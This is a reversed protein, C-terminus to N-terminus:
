LDMGKMKERLRAMGRNLLGRLSGNSLGLQRGITEYDAGGLYRLTLPLRYEDPMSRLMALVRHRREENQAWEEPTPGPDPVIQMAEGAYSGPIDADRVGGRAGVGGRKRRGERRAADVLASHAVSFLWSRFGRPETVQRINRWAVLLTEQVLDEAKHPDGTELYLRSFLLRATRRVIEEFAERDGTQSRRVLDWEDPATRSTAPDPPIMPNVFPPPAGPLDPATLGAAGASRPPRPVQVQPPDAVLQEMPDAQEPEFV